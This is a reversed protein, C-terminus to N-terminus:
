VPPPPRIFLCPVSLFSHLSERVVSVFASRGFVPTYQFASAAQATSHAVSCISCDRDVSTSSGNHVHIVQTTAVFLTLVVCLLALSRSWRSSHRGVDQQLHGLL